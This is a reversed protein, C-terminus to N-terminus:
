FNLYAIWPGNQGEQQLTTFMTPFTPLAPSWCKTRKGFHNKFAEKEPWLFVPNKQSLTLIKKHVTYTMIPNCMYHVRTNFGEQGVCQSHRRCLFKFHCNNAKYYLTDSIKNLLQFSSVKETTLQFKLM